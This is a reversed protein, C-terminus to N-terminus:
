GEAAQMMRLLPPISNREVTIDQAQKLFLPPTRDVIFLTATTDIQQGCTDTASFKVTVSKEGDCSGAEWASRSPHTWTANAGDCGRVSAHGNAALWTTVDNSNDKGDNEVVLDKAPTTLVAPAQTTSIEHAVVEIKTKVAQAYRNGWSPDTNLTSYFLFKYGSPPEGNTGLELNLEEPLLLEFETDHHDLCLSRSLENRYCM